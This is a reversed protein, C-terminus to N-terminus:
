AENSLVGVVGVVVVTSPRLVAMVNAENPPVLMEDVVKAANAAVGTGVTVVVGVKPVVVM